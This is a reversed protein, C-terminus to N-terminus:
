NKYKVFTSFERTLEMDTVAVDSRDNSEKQNELYVIVDYAM